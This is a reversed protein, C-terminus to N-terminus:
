NSSKIEFTVGWYYHLHVLNLIALKLELTSHSIFKFLMFIPSQVIFITEGKQPLLYLVMFEFTSSGNPQM